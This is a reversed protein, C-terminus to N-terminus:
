HDYFVCDLESKQLKIQEGDLMVAYVSGHMRIFRDIHDCNILYSRSVRVFESFVNECALDSLTCKLVYLTGAFTHVYIKRHLSEVYLINKIHVRQVGDPVTFDYTNARQKYIKDVRTIESLIQDRSFQKYLYMDCGARCASSGVNDYM